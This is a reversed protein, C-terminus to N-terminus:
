CGSFIEGLTGLLNPISWRLFAITLPPLLYSLACLRIYTKAGFGEIRFSYKLSALM